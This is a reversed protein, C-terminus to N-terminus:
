EEVKHRRRARCWQNTSFATNRYHQRYFVIADFTIDAFAGDLDGHEFYVKWGTLGFKAQYEKFYKQFLQFRDAM